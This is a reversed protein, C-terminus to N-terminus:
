SEPPTLKENLKTGYYNHLMLPFASLVRVANPLHKNQQAIFIDTQSIQNDPLVAHDNVLSNARYLNVRIIESWHAREYLGWNHFCAELHCFNGSSDKQNLWSKYNRLDNTPHTLDFTDGAPLHRLAEVMPYSICLQGNDMSDDFLALMDDLKHDSANTIHPDYDFFLYIDTVADRGELTLITADDHQPKPRKRLQECVLGLLDLGDDKSLAAYLHYISQGYSALLLTNSTDSVFYKALNEAINQETKLGEFIFLTYNSM